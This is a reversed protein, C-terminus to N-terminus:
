LLTHDSHFAVFRRLKATVIRRITEFLIEKDLVPGERNVKGM